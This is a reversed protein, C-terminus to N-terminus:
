NEGEDDDFDFKPNSKLLNMEFDEGNQLKAVYEDHTMIIKGDKGILDGLGNTAIADPNESSNGLAVTDKGQKLALAKIDINKGRASTVM